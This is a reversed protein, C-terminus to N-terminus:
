RYLIIVHARCVCFDKQFPDLRNLLKGKTKFELSANRNGHINTSLVMVEYSTDPKLQDLTVHMVSGTKIEHTHITTTNWIDTDTTKFQVKFTQNYGGNFGAIWSLNVSVFTVSEVSLNQPAEPKDAIFISIKDKPSFFYKSTNLTM